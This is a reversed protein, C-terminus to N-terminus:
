GTKFVAFARGGWSAAVELGVKALLLVIMGKTWEKKMDSRTPCAVLQFIMWCM